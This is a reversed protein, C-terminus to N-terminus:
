LLRKLRGAMARLNKFDTDFKKAHREWSLAWCVDAITYDSFDELWKYEALAVDADDLMLRVKESDNGVARELDFHKEVWDDCVSSACVDQEPLRMTIRGVHRLMTSVQSLVIREAPYYLILNAPGSIQETSREFSVNGLKMARIVIELSSADGAIEVDPDDDHAKCPRRCLARFTLRGVVLAFFTTVAGFLFM